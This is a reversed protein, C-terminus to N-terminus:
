KQSQNSRYTQSPIHGCNVGYSCGTKPNVGLMGDMPKQLAMCGSFALVPILLLGLLLIRKM